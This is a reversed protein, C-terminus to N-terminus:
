NQKAERKLPDSQKWWAFLINKRAEFNATFILIMLSSHLIYAETTTISHKRNEGWLECVIQIHINTSPFLNYIKNHKMVNNTHGPFSTISKVCSAFYLSFSFEHECHGAHIFQEQKLWILPMPNSSHTSWIIAKCKSYFHHKSIMSEVEQGPSCSRGLGKQIDCFSSRSSCGQSPM